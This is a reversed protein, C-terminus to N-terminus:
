TRHQLNMSLVVFLGFMSALKFIRSKHCSKANRIDKLGDATKHHVTLLGTESSTSVLILILPGLLSFYRGWFGFTLFTLWPRRCCCVGLCLYPVVLFTGYSGRIEVIVEDLGLLRNPLSFLPLFISVFWQILLQTWVKSQQRTDHILRQM